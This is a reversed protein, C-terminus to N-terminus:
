SLKRQMHRMPFIGNWIHSLSICSIRLLISGVMSSHSMKNGTNMTHKTITPKQRDNNFAENSLKKLFCAPCRLLLLELYPVRVMWIVGNEVIATV